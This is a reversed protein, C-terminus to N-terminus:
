KFKGGLELSVVLAMVFTCLLFNAAWVAVTSTYEHENTKTSM